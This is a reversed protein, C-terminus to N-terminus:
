RYRYPHQLIFMNKLIQQFFIGLIRHVLSVSDFLQKITMSAVINCLNTWKQMIKIRPKCGEEKVFGPEVTYPHFRKLFAANEFMSNKNFDQTPSFNSFQFPPFPKSTIKTHLHTKTNFSIELAVKTM